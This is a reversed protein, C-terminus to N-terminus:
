AIKSIIRQALSGIAMKSIIRQFRGRGLNTRHNVAGGVVLRAGLDDGNLPLEATGLAIMGSSLKPRRSSNDKLSSRQALIILWRGLGSGAAAASRKRSSM